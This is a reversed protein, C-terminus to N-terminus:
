FLDLGYSDFILAKRRPDQDLNLIRKVEEDMVNYGPQIERVNGSAQEQQIQSAKEIHSHETTQQPLSMNNLLDNSEIMQNNYDKLNEQYLSSDMEAIRIDNPSFNMKVNKLGRIEIDMRMRLKPKGKDQFAKQNMGGQLESNGQSTKGSDQMRNSDDANHRTTSSRGVNSQTSLDRYCSHEEIQTSLTGTSDNANKGASEHDTRPQENNIDGKKRRSVVNKTLRGENNVLEKAEKLETLSDQNAEVWKEDVIKLDEGAKLIRKIIAKITDDSLTFDVKFDYIKGSRQKKSLFDSHKRYSYRFFSVLKELINFPTFVLRPQDILKYIPKLCTEISHKTFVLNSTDIKLTRHYKFAESFSKIRPVNETEKGVEVLMKNFEETDMFDALKFETGNGGNKVISFYEWVTAGFLYYPEYNGRDKEEANSSDRKALPSFDKKKTFTYKSDKEKILNALTKSCITPVSKVLEQFKKEVVEAGSAIELGEYFEEKIDLLIWYKGEDESESIQKIEALLERKKFGKHFQIGDKQIDTIYTELQKETLKSKKKNPKNKFHSLATKVKDIFSIVNTFYKERLKSLGPLYLFVTYAALVQQSGYDECFIITLLSLLTKFFEQKTMTGYAKAVEEVQKAIPDQVLIVDVPDEIPSRKSSQKKEPQKKKKQRQKNIEKQKVIKKATQVEQAVKNKRGKPGAATIEKQSDSYPKKKSIRKLRNTRASTVPTTDKERQDEEIEDVKPQEVTKLTGEAPKPIINTEQGELIHRESHQDQALRNEDVVGAKADQDTTDAIVSADVETKEKETSLDTSPSEGPSEIPKQNEPLHILSAQDSQHKEESNRQLEIKPQSSSYHFTQEPEEVEPFSSHESTKEM